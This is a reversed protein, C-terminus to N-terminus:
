PGEGTQVYFKIELIKSQGPPIVLGEAVNTIVIGPHAGFVDEYAPGWSSIEGRQFRTKASWEKVFSVKSGPDHVKAMHDKVGKLNLRFHGDGKFEGWKQWPQPWSVAEAESGMWGDASKGITVEKVGQPLVIEMEDKMEEGLCVVAKDSFDMTKEEKGVNTLKIKVYVSPDNEKVSLLTEFDVGSELGTKYIRIGCERPSKKVVDYELDYPQNSRPNWPYSTYYGGFELFYGQETKTPMPSTNTWFQSHGTPKFVYDFILRGRNPVSSVEILSNELIVIDPYGKTTALEAAPAIHIDNKITIACGEADGAVATSVLAAHCVFLSVAIIFMMAARYIGM